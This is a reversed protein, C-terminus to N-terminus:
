KPFYYNEIVGNNMLCAYYVLEIQEAINFYFKRYASPHKGEVSIKKIIQISEKPHEKLILLAYLFKNRELALSSTDNEAAQKEQLEIIKKFFIVRAKHQPTKRLELLKRLHVTFKSHSKIFDEDSKATNLDLEILDFAIINYIDWVKDFKLLFDIEKQVQEFDKKMGDHFVVFERHEGNKLFFSIEGYEHKKPYNVEEGNKNISTFTMGWLYSNSSSFVVKPIFFLLIASLIIHLNIRKIM